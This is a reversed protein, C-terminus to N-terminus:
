NLAAPIALLQPMFGLEEVPIGYALMKTEYHEIMQNHKGILDGLSQQLDRVTMNKMEIVDDWKRSVKSNVASDINAHSLLQVDKRELENQMAQLKKEILLNKFGCKQKISYVSLNFNFFFRCLENREEELDELKQSKVEFEWQMNKLKGDLTLLVEKTADLNAKDFFFQFEIKFRVLEKRLTEVDALACKLPEYMRKNELTIKTMKKQDIREKKKLEVVEEKLTKILDLNNHLVHTIDHYYTKIDSFAKEHQKMIQSCFENKREELRTKEVSKMKKEYKLQTEKARREFEHRLKWINQDHTQKLSRLCAMHSLDMERYKKKFKRRDDKVQGENIRNDNEIFSVQSEQSHKANTVENQHEYLLHKVSQKYLKIDIQHKEEMDQLERAKHRRDNKKDELNKKEVIWFYNLQDRQQQFQDFEMTEHDISRQVAKARKILDLRRQEDPSAVAGKPAAGGAAAAKKKAKGKKKGKKKGM